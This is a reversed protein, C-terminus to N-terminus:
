IKNGKRMNEDHWMPQLNDLAWCEKFEKDEYSTFNFRAIAKKHDIDWGKKGHNKGYNDWSMGKKFKSEFYSMFDQLTFDVLGEWHMGNKNGKLSKRIAKSINKSLRNKPILLWKRNNERVKEPNNKIWKRVSENVKEPNNKYRKRNSENVKEPNNKKWERNRKREKEKNNKYRKRNIEKVKEPNKKRWKRKREKEKEPNKERYKRNNEKYSEPNNKYREKRYEAECKKCGSFHGDKRAEDKYFDNISKLEGCKSCKKTQMKEIGIGTRVKVNLVYVFKKKELHGPIAM